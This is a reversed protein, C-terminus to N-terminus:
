APKVLIHRAMGKGLVVRQGDRDALIMPGPFDNSVISFVSGPKLGLDQLKQNVRRGGRTGIIEVQQGSGCRTLSTKARQPPLQKSPASSDEILEVDILRAESRRLSLHYGRLRYEIPDGLPSLKVVDIKAGCTFGMDVLRRRIAGRGHIKVIRGSEGPALKDLSLVPM